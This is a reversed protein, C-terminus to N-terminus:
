HVRITKLESEVFVRQRFLVTGAADRVDVEHSGPEVILVNPQGAYAAAEGVRQGDVFLVSGPPAGVVAISPRTDATRVVTQPMPCAALWLAAPLAVLRKLM